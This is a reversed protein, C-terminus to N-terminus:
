SKIWGIRVNDFYGEYGAGEVLCVDLDLEFAAKRISETDVVQYSGVNENDIFYTFQYGRPDYDIRFTHWEAYNILIKKTVYHESVPNEKNNGDWWHNVCAGVMQNQSDLVLSCSAMFGREDATGVTYFGISGNSIQQKVKLDAQVFFPTVPIIGRFNNAATVLCEDPGKQKHITLFGDKQLVFGADQNAADWLAENVGGDYQSDNFNDYLDTDASNFLEPSSTPTPKPTIAPLATDTLMPPQSTNTVAAITEADVKGPACGSVLLGLVAITIAGQIKNETNM